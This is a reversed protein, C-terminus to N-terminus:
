MFHTVVEQFCLLVELKNLVAQNQTRLTSVEDELAERRTRCALTASESTCKSFFPKSLVLIEIITVKIDFSFIYPHNEKLPRIQITKRTDSRPGSWVSRYCHLAHFLNDKSLHSFVVVLPFPFSSWSDM